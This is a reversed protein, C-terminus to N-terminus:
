KSADSFYANYTTWDQPSRHLASLCKARQVESRTATQKFWKAARENGAVWPACEEPAKQLASAMACLTFSIAVLTLAM